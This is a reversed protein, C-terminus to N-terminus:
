NEVSGPLSNNRRQRLFFLFVSLTDLWFPLNGSFAFFLISLSLIRVQSASAMHNRTMGM